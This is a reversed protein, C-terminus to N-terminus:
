NLSVMGFKDIAQKGNDPLSFELETWTTGEIGRLKIGNETTTITFLYDALNEDKNKSVNKLDTMGYEDIAQVRVNNLNFSLDIWASGEYSKMKIGSFTKEIIIKFDKIDAKKEQGVLQPTITFFTGILVLLLLKKFNLKTNM